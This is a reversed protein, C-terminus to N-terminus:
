LQHMQNSTEFRKNPKICDFAKLVFIRVSCSHTSQEILISKPTDIYPPSHNTPLQHLLQQSQDSTEFRKFAKNAENPKIVILGILLIFHLLTSYLVTCFHSGIVCVCVCEEINFYIDSLPLRLM